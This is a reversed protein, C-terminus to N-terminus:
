MYKAAKKVFYDFIKKSHSRSYIGEPHWQVSLVFDKGPHELGEVVGDPAFAVKKLYRGPRNVVQHHSSNVEIVEKKVIKYLTSDKNIRVKHFVRGSQQPDAHKLTKSKMCSLDQHLDGGLAINLVQHGRCIGLIPMDSRLAMKIIEIEFKDRAKTTRSLKKHPKQGFYRPHMDVGGTILLGDISEFLTKIDSKEKANPLLVPIGGSKIVSEYYDRKIYDFGRSMPWRYKSIGEAEALTIGIKPKKSPM